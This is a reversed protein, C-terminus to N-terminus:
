DTDKLGAIKGRKIGGTIFPLVLLVVALGFIVGSIPRRIFVSLDGQFMILSQRFAKEMM